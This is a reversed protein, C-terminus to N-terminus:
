IRRAARHPASHGPADRYCHDHAAHAWAARDIGTGAAAGVPGVTGPPLHRSPAGAGGRPAVPRASLTGWATQADTLTQVRDIRTNLSFASPLTTPLHLTIPITTTDM